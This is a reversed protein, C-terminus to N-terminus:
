QNIRRSALVGLMLVILITAGQALNQWESPTGAYFVLSSILGIILAGIASGFASGVGGSLATGGLVVAAVSSMTMAGGVLPDGSATDGTICIAAFSSFIGCVVYGAIRIKTVALGTQYATLQGNGVALLRTVLRTKAIVALVFILVTIFFFVNPIGYSRGGYIKWFLSPAPLGAVPLVWLALGSILISTAFTAVIAQMRLGAVVFGNLLGCLAGILIGALCAILVQHPASGLQSMIVVISVNVFSLIAGVSLDIDGTYVVFTQAVSLFVLALYTSIVGKLARVTLSNPEAIGNLILLLALMALAPLFPFRRLTAAAQTKFSNSRTM